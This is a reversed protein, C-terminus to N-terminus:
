QVEGQFLFKNPSVLGTKVAYMVMAATNNVGLKAMINKRHTTVTHASLFLKSAVVGNTHGEAILSLVETERASLHIPDCTLPLNDLDSVDISEKRIRDLIQGCFFAGGQSTERIADEVEGLDCDKKIYSDVGAKLANVITHGSQESTIALVRCRPKMVKVKRVVDIDFGEALFDVIVVKPDFSQVLGVLDESTSAEGVVQIGKVYGAMNRVGLRFLASSDAIAVTTSLSNM